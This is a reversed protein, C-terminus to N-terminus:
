ERTTDEPDGSEDKAPERLKREGRELARVVREYPTRKLAAKRKIEKAKEMSSSKAM